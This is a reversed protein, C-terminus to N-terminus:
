LPFSISQSLSMPTACKPPSVYFGPSVTSVTSLQIQVAMAKPSDCSIDLSPPKIIHSELALPSKSPKKEFLSSVNEISSTMVNVTETSVSSKLADGASSSHVQQLDPSEQCEVTFSLSEHTM